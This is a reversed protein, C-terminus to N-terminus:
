KGHPLLPILSEQSELGGSHGIVDETVLQVPAAISNPNLKGLRARCGAQQEVKQLLPKQESQWDAPFPVAPIGRKWFHFIVRWRQLHLFRVSM